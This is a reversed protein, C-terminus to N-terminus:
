YCYWYTLDCALSFSLSQTSGIALKTLWAALLQILRGLGATGSGLGSFNVQDRKDFQQLMCYMWSWPTHCDPAVQKDLFRTYISFCVSTGQSFLLKEILRRWFFHSAKFSVGWESLVSRPNYVAKGLTITGRSNLISTPVMRHPVKTIQNDYIQM